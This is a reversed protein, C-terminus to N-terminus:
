CPEGGTRVVWLCPASLGRQSCSIETFAGESVSNIGNPALIRLAPIQGASTVAAMPRQISVSGWGPSQLDLCRQWCTISLPYFICGPHWVSIKNPLASTFWVACFTKSYIVPFAPHQEMPSPTLPFPLLEAPSHAHRREAEQQWSLQILNSCFSSQPNCLFLPMSLKYKEGVIIWLLIPFHLASHIWCILFSLCVVPDLALWGKWAM